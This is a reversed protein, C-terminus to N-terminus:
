VILIPKNEHKTGGLTKEEAGDEVAQENPM